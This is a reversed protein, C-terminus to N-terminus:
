IEWQLELFAADDDLGDTHRSDLLIQIQDDPLQERIPDLDALGDTYLQLRMPDGGTLRSEYWHPQGGVPGRTTSWRESTRFTDEFIGQAEEAGKWLRIRSDGQWALMMKGKRGRSPLEIRGCIYMTQSGQRRKEELVNRLLASMSPIPEKELTDAASVAWQQLREKLRAPNLEADDNLWDLLSQGLYRAAFEGRYSMGVGDCLVFTCVPGEIRFAAFDQGSEGAHASDSSRGYGYRCHFRSEFRSLPQESTQSSIYTFYDRKTINGRKKVISLLSLLPNM